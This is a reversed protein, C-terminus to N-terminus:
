IRDRRAYIAEALIIDEPYTIKINYRLGQILKIKYGLREVLGADDTANIGQRQAEQYAKFIIDRRFAQPTQIDFIKTRDITSTVFSRDNAEKITSTINIGCVCTGHKKAMRITKNLLGETIFPRAGDHILVIDTEEDINNLGNYVSETRTPGGAIIAKIKGIKYKKIIKSASGIDDKHVVVLIYDILSSDALVELTHILLPKRALLVFSKRVGLGSVRAGLRNGEGAAPVIAVVKM